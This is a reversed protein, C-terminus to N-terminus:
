AVAANTTKYHVVVVGPKAMGPQPFPIRVRAERSILGTSYVVSGNGSLFTTGLVGDGGLGSPGFGPVGRLIRVGM